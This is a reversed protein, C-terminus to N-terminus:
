TCVSAAASITLLALSKNSAPSGQPECALIALISAASADQAAASMDGKEHELYYARYFRNKARDTDTTASAGALVLALGLTSLRVAITLM